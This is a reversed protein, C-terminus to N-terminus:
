HKISIKPATAAGDIEHVYINTSQLVKTCKNEM